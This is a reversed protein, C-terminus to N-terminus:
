GTAALIIAFDSWAVALVGFRLQYGWNTNGASFALQALLPAILAERTERWYVNRRWPRFGQGMDVVYPNGEAVIGAATFARYPARGGFSITPSYYAVGDGPQIRRLPAAKGHCVQM